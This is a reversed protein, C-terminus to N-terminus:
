GFIYTFYASTSWFIYTPDVRVEIFLSLFFSKSFPLHARFLRNGGENDVTYKNGVHNM